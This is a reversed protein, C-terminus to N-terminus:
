RADDVSMTALQANLAAIREDLSELVELPEEAVLHLRPATAAEHPTAGFDVVRQALQVGM